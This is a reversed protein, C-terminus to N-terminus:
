EESDMYKLAENPHQDRKEQNAQYLQDLSTIMKKLEKKTLSADDV